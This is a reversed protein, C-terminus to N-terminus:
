VTRLSVFYGTNACMNGYESKLRCMWLFKIILPEDRFFQLPQKCAYYKFARLTAVWFVVKLVSRLIRALHHKNLMELNEGAFVSHCLIHPFVCAGLFLLSMGLALFIWLWALSFANSNASIPLNHLSLTYQVNM